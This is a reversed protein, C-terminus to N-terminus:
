RYRRGERQDLFPHEPLKCLGALLVSASGPRLALCSGSILRGHEVGFDGDDNAVVEGGPLLQISTGERHAADGAGIGSNDAPDGLVRFHPQPAGM